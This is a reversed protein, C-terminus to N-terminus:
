PYRRLGAAPPWAILMMLGSGLAAQMEANSIMALPDFRRPEPTRPQKAGGQRAVSKPMQKSTAQM